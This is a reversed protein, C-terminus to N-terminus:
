LALGALPFPTIIVAPLHFVRHIPNVPVKQFTIALPQFRSLNLSSPKSDIATLDLSSQSCPCIPFDSLGDRSARGVGDMAHSAKRRQGHERRRSNIGATLHVQSQIEWGDSISMHTDSSDALRSAFPAYAQLLADRAM